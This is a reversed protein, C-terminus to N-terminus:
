GFGTLSVQLLALIFGIAFAGVALVATYGTLRNPPVNMLRGAGLWMLVLAYLGFVILFGFGPVAICAAALWGPTFSYAILKFAQDFRAQGGFKPALFDTLLAALYTVALSTVYSLAANIIGVVIPVRVIGATPVSMGILSTYIFGAIAPVAALVVVYSRLVQWANDQEGEIVIWESRPTLLIRSARGILSM